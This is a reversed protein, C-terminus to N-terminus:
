LNLLENGQQEQFKEFSWVSFKIKYTDCLFKIAFFIAFTTKPTKTIQIILNECKKCPLAIKM